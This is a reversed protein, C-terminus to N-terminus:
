TRHRRLYHSFAAPSSFGLEQALLKASRPPHASLLQHLATLTAEGQLGRFHLGSAALARTLTHRDVGMRRAAESLRLRPTRALLERLARVILEPNYAM